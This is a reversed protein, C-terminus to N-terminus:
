RGTQHSNHKLLFLIAPWMSWKPFDYLFFFDQWHRTWALLVSHAFRVTGITCQLATFSLSRRKIMRCKNEAELTIYALAEQSPDCLCLFVYLNGAREGWRGRWRGGERQRGGEREGEGQRSDEASTSRYKYTWAYNPRKIVAQRGLLAHTHELTTKCATKDFLCNTKAYLFAVAWHPSCISALRAYM